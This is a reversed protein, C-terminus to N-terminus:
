QKVFQKTVVDGNTEIKLLYNGQKLSAINLNFSKNGNATLQQSIAINGAIDVVTLKIKQNPPLGQIQLSNTAPNPSLKIDYNSVAIVNSYNVAGSKSTTQLRYYNTGTLPSQDQYTYNSTNSANIRAISNFHIGDYSRQVIYKNISSNADWTFGNHHQLWRKIKTILIQKQSLNNNYRAVLCYSKGGIESGIFSDGALLIKKDKQLLADNGDAYGQVDTIVQGNNGFTSDPEGNSNFRALALHSYTQNVNYTRGTIIIKGDDQLLITRGNGPDKGFAVDQLGNNGFSSDISGDTNLRAVAMYTFDTSFQNKLSSGGGVIKGDAQVVLSYAIFSKVREDSQQFAAKGNTGFNNDISGDTNFRYVVGDNNFLASMLIKGDPQLGIAYATGFSKDGNKEGVIVIGNNGFSEDVSGDALYRVIFGQRGQNPANIIYGGVIIKYDPQLIINVPATLNSGITTVVNGSTGFSSDLKGDKKYKAVQINSSYSSVTLAEDNSQMAVGIIEHQLPNGTVGDNGFSSDITGDMNYRILLFPPQSDFNGAGAGIIKGDSQLAIKNILGNANTLVIGTDGFSKDLIGPQAYLVFLAMSFIILLLTKKM